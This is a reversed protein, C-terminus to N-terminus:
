FTKYIYVKAFVEGEGNDPDKDPAKTETNAGGDGSPSGVLLAFDPQSEKRKETWTTTLLFQRQM